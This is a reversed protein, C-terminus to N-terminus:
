NDQRLDITFISPECKLTKNDILNFPNKIKEINVQKEDYVNTVLYIYYNERRDKLAKLENSTVNITSISKQKTSKVEIFIKNGNLDYSTIDWGPKDNIIEYHKVIKDKYPTDKLFLYEHEFVLDEGKRGTFSTDKSSRNITFTKKDDNVKREERLKNKKVEFEKIVISPKTPEKHFNNLESELDLLEDALDYNSQFVKMLPSFIEFTKKFEIELSLDKNEIDKPLYFKSISGAGNKLGKPSKLYDIFIELSKFDNKKPVLRTKEKFYWEGNQSLDEKLKKIIRSKSSPILKFLSPIVEKLKKKVSQDSFDSPHISASFGLEIGKHSAIMFIQPM